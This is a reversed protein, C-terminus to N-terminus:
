MRKSKMLNTTKKFFFQPCARHLLKNRLKGAVDQYKGRCDTRLCWRNANKECM